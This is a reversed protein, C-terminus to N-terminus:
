RSPKGDKGRILLIDFYICVLLFFSGIGTGFWTWKPDAFITTTLFMGIGMLLIISLKIIRSLRSM